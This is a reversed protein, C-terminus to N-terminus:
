NQNTGEPYYQVEFQMVWKENRSNIIQAEYIKGKQMPMLKELDYQILNEGAHIPITIEPEKKNSNLDIIKITIISDTTENIYSVKLIGNPAVGKDPDNKKMKVFPMSEVVPTQRATSKVQFVWVESKGAYGREDRAIVQWAYWKEKEFTAASPPYNLLNSVLNGDLYFPINQQIAEEALQGSRVEAVLIQYSLRNFMAVPTPPTWSFQMPPNNLIASDAPFILMPPSLPEADFQVCDESLNVEGTARSTLAYCATYNGAPLLQQMRNNLTPLIYNYQIPNLQNDNLQKAGPTLNFYNSVATLVEQGTIRDQLILELRCYYPQNTSNIILVNWLQDKQLLGVTPLNAQITIQTEAALSILTLFLVLLQKKM